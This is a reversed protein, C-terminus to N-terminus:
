QREAEKNAPAPEARATVTLTGVKAIRAELRDGPRVPGVGAPTGTFILDGPELTFWRSAKLYHEPSGEERFFKQYFDLTTVTAMSNLSSDLSSMAAALLASFILGRLGAPIFQVVFHPVMYDPLKSRLYNRWGSISAEFGPKLVYYAVLRQDGPHDERVVVICKKVADLEAVRAEIEGLEVRLGRIKVQFDIRGLYEISGDALYRALDGTKYLRATPDDSFPDAVFKEADDPNTLHEQAEEESLGAGHGDEIGGLAGLEAEVTVGREHAYEVVSKTTEVNYEYSAITKGDPSLVPQFSEDAGVLLPKEGELVELAAGLVTADGAGTLTLTSPRHASEPLSSPVSLTQSRAVPSVRAVSVPCSETTVATATVGSPRCATDAALSRVSLTQSRSPPRSSRVKSPWLSQTM